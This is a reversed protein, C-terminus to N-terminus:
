AITFTLTAVYPHIAGSQGIVFNSRFAGLPIVVDYTPALSYSGKASAGTWVLPQSEDSVTIDDHDPNADAGAAGTIAGPKITLAGIPITRAVTDVAGAESTFDTGEVSLGWAAGSGRADVLSWTNSVGTAVQDTKGDLTVDSLTPAFVTANLTGGRVSANVPQEESSDATVALSPVAVVTSLVLALAFTGGLATFFQSSPNSM